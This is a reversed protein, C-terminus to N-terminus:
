RARVVFLYYAAFAAGGIVLMTKLNAPPAVPSSAGGGDVIDPLTPIEPLTIPATKTGMAVGPGGGGGGGSVTVKVAPDPSPSVPLPVPPPQSDLGPGVINPDRFRLRDLPIPPARTAPATTNAGPPPAAARVGQNTAERVALLAKKIVGAARHDLSPASRPGSAVAAAVAATRGGRVAEIRGRTSYDRVGGLAGQAIAAMARDRRQTERGVQARRQGRAYSVMDAAAIAGVGRTARDSDRTYSM